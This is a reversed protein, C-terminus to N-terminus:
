TSKRHWRCLSIRLRSLQPGHSTCTGRFCCRICMNQGGNGAAWKSAKWSKARRSAWLFALHAIACHCEIRNGQLSIKQSLFIGLHWITLCCQVTLLSRQKEKSTTNTPICCNLRCHIKTRSTAFDCRSQQFLPCTCHCCSYVTKCQENSSIMNGTAFPSAKLVANKTM